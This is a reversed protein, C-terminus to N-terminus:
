RLPEEPPEIVHLISPMTDSSDSREPRFEAETTQAQDPDGADSQKGNDNAEEAHAQKGKKSEETALRHREASQDRLSSTRWILEKGEKRLQNLWQSDEEEILVSGSTRGPSSSRSTAGLSLTRGEPVALRNTGQFMRSDALATRNGAFAAPIVLMETAEGLGAAVTAHPDSSDDAGGDELALSAEDHGESVAIQSTWRRILYRKLTSVAGLNDDPQDGDSGARITRDPASWRKILLWKIKAWRGEPVIYNRPGTRSWLSPNDAALESFFNEYIGRVYPTQRRAALVHKLIYWTLLVCAMFPVSFIFYWKISPDDAFTDVNM